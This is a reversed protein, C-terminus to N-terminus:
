IMKMRAQKIVKLINRIVADPDDRYVTHGTGKIIEQWSNTSLKLLDKQMDLWEDELSIGNVDPLQKIGRTLVALPIDPMTPSYKVQHASKKFRKLENMQAFTAKRSSNLFYWRKEFEDMYDPASERRSIKLPSKKVKDLESLRYIQEPHSSEILVAGVTKDPYTSAFYRATFGGFSHGVIVYPGPENALDLLMNLEHVIQATTREGPGPDSWGYGARDYVCTRTHTSLEKAIKYWNASTDALGVDILVTPSKEGMCDIYMVHLGMNVFKGPPRFPDFEKVALVSQNLYLTLFSIYFLFKIM